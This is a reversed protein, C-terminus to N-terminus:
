NLLLADSGSKAFEGCLNFTTQAKKQAIGGYIIANLKEETDAYNKVNQFYGTIANYAGFLTGKTTDLKQSDAMMAYGYAGYVQNRYNGSMLELKGDRINDLTEKNPALAIQILRQVEKDTIKVKAWQNFAQEM